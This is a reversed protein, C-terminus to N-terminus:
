AVLLYVIKVGTSSLISGGGPKKNVLYDWHREVLYDEIANAYKTSTTEYVVIMKKWKSNAHLHEQFRLNPERGTIGIKLKSYRAKYQGIARNLSECVDAPHGTFPNYFISM